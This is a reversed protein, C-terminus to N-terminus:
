FSIKLPINLQQNSSPFDSAQIINLKTTSVYLICIRKYNVDDHIQIWQTSMILLLLYLQFFFYCLWALYFSARLKHSFNM